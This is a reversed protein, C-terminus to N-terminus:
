EGKFPAVGSFSNSSFLYSMLRSQYIQPEMEVCPETASKWIADAVTSRFEPNTMEDEFSKRFGGTNDHAFAAEAALLAAEVASSKVSARDSFAVYPNSADLRRLRDALFSRKAVTQEEDVINVPPYMRREVARAFSPHSVVTNDGTGGLSIIKADGEFFFSLYSFGGAPGPADPHGGLDIIMTAHMRDTGTRACAARLEEVSQDFHHAPWYRLQYKSSNVSVDEHEPYMSTYTRFNAGVMNPPLEPFLFRPTDSGIPLLRNDEIMQEFMTTLLGVSLNQSRAHMDMGAIEAKYSNLQKIYNDYYREAEVADQVLRPAGTDWIWRKGPSREDVPEFFTQLDSKKLKSLNSLWKLYSDSLNEQLAEPDYKLGCYLEFLGAQTANILLKSAVMPKLREGLTQEWASVVSRVVLYGLTYLDSVEQGLSTDLYSLHNLRSRRILAESYFTEFTSSMEQGFRRSFETENEDPHKEINFTILSRIASHIQSIETPDDKPDCLLEVYMSVGELWHRWIKRETDALTSSLLQREAIFIVEEKLTLDELALLKRPDLERDEDVYSYLLLELYNTVSRYAAAQVGIPGQLVVAHGIEHALDLLLVGSRHIHTILSQGGPIAGSLRSDRLRLNTWIIEPRQHPSPNLAFRLDDMMIQSQGLAFAEIAAKSNESESDLPDMGLLVKRSGWILSSLDPVDPMQAAVIAIIEEADTGQTRRAQEMLRKALDNQLGPNQVTSTLALEVSDITQNWHQNTDCSLRLREIALRWIAGRFQDINEPDSLERLKESTKLAPRDIISSLHWSIEYYNYAYNKQGLAEACAGAFEMAEASRQIEDETSTEGQMADTVFAAKSLLHMLEQAQEPMIVLELVQRLDPDIQGIQVASCIIEAIDSSIGCRVVISKTTSLLFPLLEDM